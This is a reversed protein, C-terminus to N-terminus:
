TSQAHISKVPSRKSVLETKPSTPHRGIPRENVLNAAEYCVTQLESFTMISEGIAAFIAKKVLKVLAESTGNQWLADVPIFEWQMGKTADFAFLEDWDWAESVKQLEESAATLQTSNDSLLKAPYERLSM